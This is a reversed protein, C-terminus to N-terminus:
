SRFAARVDDLTAATAARVLVRQLAEIDDIQRLDPLLEDGAAGFKANLLLALSLLVGERFGEARGKSLADERMFREASTIYTM